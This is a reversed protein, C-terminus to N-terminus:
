LNIVYNKDSSVDNEGFSLVYVDYGNKLLLNKELRVVTESGGGVLLDNILLIKKM